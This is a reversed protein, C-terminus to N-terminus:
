QRCAFGSTFSYLGIIKRRSPLSSPFSGIRLFSLFFCFSAPCYDRFHFSFLWNTFSLWSFSWDHKQEEIFLNKILLRLYDQAGFRRKPAIDDVVIQGNDDTIPQPLKIEAATEVKTIYDKVEPAIEGEKREVLPIKERKSVLSEKREKSATQPEPLAM